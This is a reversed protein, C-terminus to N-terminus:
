IFVDVYMKHKARRRMWYLEIYAHKTGKRNTSLILSKIEHRYVILEFLLYM